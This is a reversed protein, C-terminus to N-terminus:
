LLVSKEDPPLPQSAKTKIQKFLWVTPKTLSEEEKGSYCVNQIFKEVDKVRTDSIKCSVCITNLLKPKVNGNLYKKLIRIKGTAHLVSTTSCRIIAHTQPIKAAVDSGLYEVVKQTNIFKNSEIKM